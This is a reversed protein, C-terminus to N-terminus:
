NIVPGLVPLQNKLAQKAAEQDSWQYETEGFCLSKEHGKGMIVITDHPKALQNIAFYIAQGRDAISLVKHHYKGLESKLQNIISWVNEHRPDEATFIALDALRAATEGMIPRKSVDRQGASGLIAIIRGKKGKKQNKLAALANEVAQPTHAFDVLINLKRKNAIPQMRGPLAPFNLIAQPIKAKKAGLDLAMLIALKANLRNYKEPFRQEVAIKIAPPLHSSASFAKIKRGLIKKLLEFSQDEDNAWVLPTRKFIITKAKLYELYNLHYDFHEHSINTIGGIQPKIGWNRFQYAGHSTVELVLHSCGAELMKKLLTYLVKPQPNTVHLGTDVEQNGIKAAVTTILGAKIGSQILLHHLLSSTTTKGDTGTIAAITLKRQPWATTIEAPVGQFLGTKFWHYGRKIKYIFLKLWM